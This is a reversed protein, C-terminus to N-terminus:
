GAAGESGGVLLLYLIAFLALGKPVAGVSVLEPLTFRPRLLGLSAMVVLLLVARLLFSLLAIIPVGSADTMVGVPLVVNALLGTLLLLKLGEGWEILALSPGSLESRAARDIMTLELHTAPNDFPMRGCEMLIALLLALALTVYGPDLLLQWGRSANATVIVSLETTGRDLGLALVILLLTPEVVSHVLMARGAGLGTFPSGSDMALLCLALKAIMLLGTLLILDSRPGLLVQTSFLPVMAAAGLLSVFFVAPALTSLAPSRQSFISEKGLLKRLDRYPQTLSPGAQGCFRCRLWRVLGQALPAASLLILLQIAGIANM